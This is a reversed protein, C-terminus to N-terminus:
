AKTLATSRMPAASTRIAKRSRSPTRVARALGCALAIVGASLAGYARYLPGPQEENRDAYWCADFWRPDLQLSVKPTLDTPDSSYPPRSVRHHTM